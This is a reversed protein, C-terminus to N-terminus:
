FKSDLTKPGYGLEAGGSLILDIGTIFSAGESALFLCTHGAEAITGSRGLWQVSELWDHLAKPNSAMAEARVRSNSVINGPLVANVRVGFQAEDIALAKTMASVAGKTACYPVAFAEGIVSVLSGMNIISGQVKRLHPLAFKCGMFVAVVNLQLLRNFEEMSQEDIPGRPSHAGANNILCDLRGYSHVTSDVASKLDAPNGVDASVFRCPGAGLLTLDRALATGSASDTDCITVGWGASCFARACGEGIGKAGGTILVVKNGSNM